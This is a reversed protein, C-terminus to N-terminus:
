EAVADDIIQRKLKPDEKGNVNSLIAGYTSMM